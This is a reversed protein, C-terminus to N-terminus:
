TCWHPEIQRYAIWLRTTNQNSAMKTSVAIVFFNPFREANWFFRNTTSIEFQVSSFFLCITGGTEPLTLQVGWWRGDQRWTGSFIPIMDGGAPKTTIVYVHCKGTELTISWITLMLFTILFARKPKKALLNENLILKWELNHKQQFILLWTISKKHKGRPFHHFINVFFSPLIPFRKLQGDPLNDDVLQARLIGLDSVCFIHFRWLLDFRQM